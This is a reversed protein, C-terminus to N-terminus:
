AAEERIFLSLLFVAHAGNKKLMRSAENATAGTTFVDEVLLMRRPIEPLGRYRLGNHIGLFRDDHGRGSQRLSGDIKVLDGGWPLGLGAGISRALDACPQYNRLHRASRGSAIYVVREPGFDRLEPALTDLITTRFMRFLRRDNEFKWCHLVERWERNLRFLSRHADFYIRRGSCIM